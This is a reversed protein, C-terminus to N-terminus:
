SQQAIVEWYGNKRGGIRTIKNQNELAELDRIVTRNTINLHHALETTTISPQQIILELIRVVRLEKTVDKTVDVIFDSVVLSNNAYDNMILEKFLTVKFGNAMEGFSPEVVGYEKCIKRVLMIGSGYREILGAEKFIKAILKNCSKSTYNGSM